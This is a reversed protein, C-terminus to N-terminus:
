FIKDYRGSNFSINVDDARKCNIACFLKMLLKSEGANDLKEIYDSISKIGNAKGEAIISRPLDKHNFQKEKLLIRSIESHLFLDDQSPVESFPFTVYIKVADLPQKTGIYYNGLEIYADHFNPKLAITDQLLQIIQQRIQDETEGVIETAIKTSKLQIIRLLTQAMGFCIQYNRITQPTNRSDLKSSDIAPVATENVPNIAKESSIIKSPSVKSVKKSPTPNTKGKAAIPKTVPSVKSPTAKLNKVPNATPKAQKVPIDKIISKGLKEITELEKWWEMSEIESINTRTPDLELSKAAIFATWANKLQATNSTQDFLELYSTALSALFISKLHYKVLKQSVKLIVQTTFSSKQEFLQNGINLLNEAIADVNTCLAPFLKCLEIFHCQISLLMKVLHLYANSSKPAYGLWNSIMYLQDQIIISAEKYKKLIKYGTYLSIAASYLSTWNFPNDPDFQLNSLGTYSNRKLRFEILFSCFYNEIIKVCMIVDNEQLVGLNNANLRSVAWTVMADLNLPQLTWASHAHKLASGEEGMELYLKALLINAHFNSPEIKLCDILKKKCEIAIQDTNINEGTSMNNSTSEKMTKLKWIILNQVEAAQSLDILVENQMSLNKLRHYEAEMAKIQVTPDALPPIGLQLLLGTVEDHMFGDNAIENDNITDIKKAPEPFWYYFVRYQNMYKALIYHFSAKLNVQQNVHASTNESIAMTITKLISELIEFNPSKIIKGNSEVLVEFSSDLFCNIKEKFTNTEKILEEENFKKKAGGNLFAEWGTSEPVFGSVTEFSQTKCMKLHEESLWTPFVKGCHPCNAICSIDHNTKDASHLSSNCKACVTPLYECTSFHSNFSNASIEKSTCGLGPCQIKANTLQLELDQDSEL